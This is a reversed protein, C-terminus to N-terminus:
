ATALIKDLRVADVAQRGIEILRAAHRFDLALVKGVPCPNAGPRLAVVEALAAFVAFLSSAFVLLHKKM